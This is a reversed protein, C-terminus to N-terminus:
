GFESGRFWTPQPPYEIRPEKPESDNATKDNATHIESIAATRAWHLNEGLSRIRSTQCEEGTEGTQRKVTDRWNDALAADGAMLAALLSADPPLLKTATKRVRQGADLAEKTVNQGPPGDASARIYDPRREGGAAGASMHLDAEHARFADHARGSLAPKGNPWDASPKGRKGRLITFVDKRWAGVILGTAKDINVVGGQAKIRAAEARSERLRVDAARAQDDNAAAIIKRPPSPKNKKPRSM